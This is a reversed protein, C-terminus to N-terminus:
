KKEGILLHNIKKRQKGTKESLRHIVNHCSYCLIMLNDMTNNKRNGDRHHALLKTKKLEGCIECKNPKIGFIAKRYVWRGDIYRPNNEGQTNAKKIANIAKKINEPYNARCQKSCFKKNLAQWKQCYIEKGCTLCRKWIGTKPKKVNMINKNTM